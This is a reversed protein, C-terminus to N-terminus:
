RLRRTRSPPPVSWVSKSKAARSPNLRVPICPRVTRSRKPLPGEATLASRQRKRSVPLSGDSTAPTTSLKRLHDSDQPACAHPSTPRWWERPAAILPPIPLPPCRRHPIKDSYPGIARSLAYLAPGPASKGLGSLLTHARLAVLLPDATRLRVPPMAPYPYQHRTVVGTLPNRLYIPPTIGFYSGAVRFEYELTDGAPIKPLVREEMPRHSNCTYVDTIHQLTDDTPVLAMGKALLREALKPAFDRQLYLYNGRDFLMRTTDEPQTGTAAEHVLLPVVNRKTYMPYGLPEGFVGTISICDETYPTM